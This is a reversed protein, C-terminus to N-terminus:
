YVLFCLLEKGVSVFTQWDNYQVFLYQLIATSVTTVPKREVINHASKSLFEKLESTYLCMVILM